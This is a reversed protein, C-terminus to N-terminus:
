RWVTDDASPQDLPNENITSEAVLEFGADKFWQLVHSKKLYGAAGDAWEDPNDEPAQHQVVGVLGGPKLMNFTGSLAETLYGGDSEFRALHHLARIYLAADVQGDYQDGVAGIDTAIGEPSDGAGWDSVKGPFEAELTKRRELTEETAWPFKTWMAPRYDLGILRANSGLYPSLVQSYWGGGPLYEAVTMGPEVGFFELTEKPRRFQHRAKHDDPLGDLVIELRTKDSVPASAEEADVSVEVLSESEVTISESTDESCAVLLALAPLVFLGVYLKM